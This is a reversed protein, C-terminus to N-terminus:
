PLTPITRCTPGSQPGYQSALPDQKATATAVSNKMPALLRCLRSCAASPWTHHEGGHCICGVRRWGIQRVSEVFASVAACRWGLRRVGQLAVMRIMGASRVTHGVQHQLTRRGRQTRSQYERTQKVHFMVSRHGYGLFDLADDVDMQQPSIRGNTTALHETTLVTAALHPPRGLSQGAMGITTLTSDRRARVSSAVEYAAPKTPNGHPTVSDFAEQEPHLAASETHLLLRANRSVTRCKLVCQVAPTTGTDPSGDRSDAGGARRESPNHINQLEGSTQHNRRPLSNPGAVTWNTLGGQRWPSFRAAAGCGFHFPPKDTIHGAVSESSTSDHESSGTWTAAAFTPQLPLPAPRATCPPAVSWGPVLEDHLTM